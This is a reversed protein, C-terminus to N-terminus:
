WTEFRCGELKYGLVKVVYPNLIDELTFSISMMINM